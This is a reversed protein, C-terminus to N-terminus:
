ALQKQCYKARYTYNSHLRVKQLLDDIDQFTLESNLSVALYARGAVGPPYAVPQLYFGEQELEQCVAYTLENDEQGLVFVSSDEQGFFNLHLEQATEVFFHHMLRVQNQARPCGLDAPAAGFNLLQRGQLAVFRSCGAPKGSALQRLAAALVAGVTEPTQPLEHQALMTNTLTLLLFVEHTGQAGL